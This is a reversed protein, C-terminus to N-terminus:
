PNASKAKFLQDYYAFLQNLAAFSNARAVTTKCTVAIRSSPASDGSQNCAVVQYYHIQNRRKPKAIKFATVNAPTCGVVAWNVGDTSRMVKFMVENGSLDKWSITLKKGKAVAKLGTPATPTPPLGAVPTPTLTMAVVANSYESETIEKNAQVRYHYETGSSLGVDSYATSDAPLDTIALWVSGDLSRQVKYGTENDATDKWALDIQNVSVAAASLDVPANVLVLMFPDVIMPNTDPDLPPDVIPDTTPNDVAGFSDITGLISYEGVDGYSGHSGVVLRYSGAPVTATFMAGGAYAPDQWEVIVQGEADVLQVKADLNNVGLPVSLEFTLTGEEVTFSWYDLDDTKGIIGKGQLVEKNATLATAAGISNGVDDPRWGLQSALIAMDDQIDDASTSSPGRWWLGRPSLYSDGMIPARFMDGPNYEEIKDGDDDYLSQHQLGFAHGSEHSVAEGVLKPTGNSLHDPFVFAVNGIVNSFSHMYSIGGNAGGTWSGDGGIVVRLAGDGLDAPAATTVNVNFPAYDEAVLRWVGEIYWLELESFTTPDGDIDYAPVDIDTYAGWSDEHHGNFDLYLTASGAPYSAFAPVDIDALILPPTPPMVVPPPQPVDGAPLSHQPLHAELHGAHPVWRSELGELSPLFRTLRRSTNPKRGM